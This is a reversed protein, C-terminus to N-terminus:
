WEEVFLRGKGGSNAMELEGEEIQGEMRGGYDLYIYGSLDLVGNGARGLGGCGAAVSVELKIVGFMEGVLSLPLEKGTM